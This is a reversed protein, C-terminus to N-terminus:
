SNLSPAPITTHLFHSHHTPLFEEGGSGLHHHIERCLFELTGPVWGSIGGLGLIVGLAQHHYTFADERQVSASLFRFATGPRRGGDGLFGSELVLCFFGELLPLIRGPLCLLCSHSHLFRHGGPLVSGV